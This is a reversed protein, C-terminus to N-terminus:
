RPRRAFSPSRPGYSWPPRDTEVRCVPEEGPAEAIVLLRLAADNKPSVEVSVSPGDIVFRDIRGRYDWIVLHFSSYRLDRRSGDRITMV